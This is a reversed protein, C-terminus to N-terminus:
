NLRFLSVSTGKDCIRVKLGELTASEESLEFSIAIQNVEATDVNFTQSSLVGTDM